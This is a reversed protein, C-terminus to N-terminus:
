YAGGMLDEEDEDKWDMADQGGQGGDKNKNYKQYYKIYDKDHTLLKDTQKIENTLTTIRQGAQSLEQAMAEESLVPGTSAFTLVPPSDSSLTARLAGNAIMDSVLTELQQINALQTGSGASETLEHIEPTSIKTYVNGLNKIQFQQFAEVVNLILGVNFDTRFINSAFDVEAKFRAASPQVFLEALADYPKAIIHFQKAANNSTWRPLNPMKGEILLGVLVWKKYAEVMIRSTPADGRLPYTIANELWVRAKEWERLGIFIMGTLLFYELVEHSKLKQTLQTNATIYSTPPISLDCLYRPKPGSSSGPFYLIDRDLVEVPLSYARSELTLQALNLHLSTLLNGAPQLRLIADRLPPIAAAPQM